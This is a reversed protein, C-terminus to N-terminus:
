GVTKMLDVNIELLERVIQTKAIRLVDRNSM